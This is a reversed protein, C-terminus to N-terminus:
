DGTVGTHPPVTVTAPQELKFDLLTEAPVKVQEGKTSAAYVGGGAGGVGAGIAAGRGGGAIAGIIGGIVAGAGIATATKKARSGGVVSSTSSVLAYSRGAYDLKVLELHLESRGSVGGASSARTLRIYVDAGKPVVPENNVVIPYELSAHFVEGTKNVSSNVPDIMRVRISTGAPIEIDKPEPAASATDGAVTPPSVPAASADPADTAPQTADASPAPSEASTESASQGSSVPANSADPTQQSPESNAAAARAKAKRDAKPTEAVPMPSTAVAPVPQPNESSAQPPATISSMQDDVRKVGPTQAAIKYAELRASDDSINGTITAVGQKVSVSLSSSKLQQDASIQVKISEALGADGPGRACGSVVAASALMLVLVFRLRM